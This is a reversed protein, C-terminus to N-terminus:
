RPRRGLGRQPATAPKNTFWSQTTADTKFFNLLMAAVKPEGGHLSPHTGDTASFDSCAWTLGDGIRPNLGDAWLYPGWSLWPVKGTTYSLDPNGSIQQEILWKVTFGSEYAYPEPNLLTSAYGAYSRSSLYVLRLNPYSSSLMQLLTQLESQLTQAYAPFGTTPQPDVEKLWVAQVQADSIGAAQLRQEVTTWYQAGTAPNIIKGAGMEGVACDVITLKPNKAPDPDALTKFTSFEMTTNSFGISILAIKGNVADPLGQSNLPQVKAAMQLGGALHAAPRQNAGDPYLGGSYGKYPNFNPDTLPQLGISTGACNSSSQAVDTAILAFFVLAIRMRFM